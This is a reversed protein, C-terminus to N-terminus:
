AHTPVSAGQVGLRWTALAREVTWGRYAAYAAAVAGRTTDDWGRYAALFQRPQTHVHRFIARGPNALAEAIEPCRQTAHPGACNRCPADPWPPDNPDPDVGLLEAYETDGPREQDSFYTDDRYADCIPCEGDGQCACEVPSGIDCDPCFWTVSAAGCSQCTNM